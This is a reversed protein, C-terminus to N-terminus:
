SSVPHPPSPCSPEAKITFSHRRTVLKGSTLGPWNCQLFTPYKAKASSAERCRNCLRSPQAHLQWSRLVNQTRAFDLPGKLKGIKQVTPASCNSYCIDSQTGVLEVYSANGESSGKTLSPSAFPDSVQFSQSWPLGSVYTCSYRTM